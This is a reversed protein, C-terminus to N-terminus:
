SFNFGLTLGFTRPRNLITYRFYGPMAYAISQQNLANRLWFSLKTQRFSLGIQANFIVYDPQNITNALDFYQNGMLRGEGRLSLKIQKPLDFGYQAGVFATIVPALITRNGEISKGLFLFDQYRSHNFGFSGDFLLNKVPKVSGELEMGFANVNGINEIIYNGEDTRFDLQLDLWNLYFLSAQLLYQKNNSNLKYGLEINNSFEPLYTTYDGSVKSSGNIGGARFGRSYLLHFHHQSNLLYSLVAKPSFAQFDANRTFKPVIENRVGLSDVGFKGIQNSRNEYDYRLGLTFNWKEKLLYSAQGFGAVGYNIQNSQAVQLGPIEGFFLALRGYRSSFTKDYTQHFFYGGVKWKLQKHISPSSFSIEQSYVKQPTFDGEKQKFTSGTALNYPLLDQDIHDYRQGVFQYASIAAFSFKSHRYRAAISQNILLRNSVGLSNVAMKFPNKVAVVENEVAQYFLSNTSNDRQGKMNILIDWHENKPLWKLFLNGYFSQEDGMRQGDEPTGALPIGDFDTKNSLDNTYFGLQSEFQGSLGLLLRDRVIPTSVGFGYRQLGQNGISANVFGNTNFSPKKTTINIVGGMANRGYLTGQPGRLVEISAIDMLQIGNSSVDLANVGDIYTAISPNDSFVSIGRISQMQQYSVGFDAYQYNPVLARLDQLEWTRTNEIKEASLFTLSTPTQFLSEETKNALVVVEDMAISIPLLSIDLTLDEKLVTLHVLRTAYNLAKVELLYAGPRIEIRFQGLSDAVVLLNNNLVEIAAFPIIDSNSHSKVTGEIRQAMGLQACCLMLLLILCNTPKVKNM